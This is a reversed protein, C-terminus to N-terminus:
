QSTRKTLRPKQGAPIRTTYTRDKMRLEWDVRANAVQNPSEFLELASVALVQAAYFTGKQGISSGIAAVNQWSHGPAEYAFCTTRIGGTPVEWSVDGVDTSGRSTHGSESLPRLANDLSQPPLTGADDAFAHQLRLAFAREDDSFRPAGVSQMNRYLLESLPTNPIIEHCDTDIEVKLKTRTMLAAGQAIEHVREFCRDADDHTNARVFYWVRAQAPVVNPVDGGNSIVYHMRVDEKVHERLFNVGINMLEVGDLASCGKDPNSSAHSAIGRFQFEASILAKSSGAWVDNRDSPHWHLCVDLDKFAGGIAMYVKGVVTEEAPTGFVKLTGPLRHDTLAKKVAIGAGVAAAGLGSHGCAHGAKGEAVPEQQTSIRQSMGPLADYEALIGIVPKGQGYTAVFATPMGGIDTKVDFGAARLKAVLLESSRKEELAPEAFEWIARNMEVIEARLKEVHELGTQQAPRWSPRAPQPVNEGAIATEAICFAALALTTCWLIFDNFRHHRASRLDPMANEGVPSTGAPQEAQDRVCIADPENYCRM